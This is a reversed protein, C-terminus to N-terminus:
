RTVTPTVTVIGEVVRLKEGTTTNNLKIDYVYRGYKLSLTETANLSISLAGNASAGVIATSFSLGSSSSYSRRIQADVTYDSLDYAVGNAGTLNFTRTFTTGQDVVINQIAAM